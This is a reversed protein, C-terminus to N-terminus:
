PFAYKRPLRWTSSCILWLRRFPAVCLVTGSRGQVTRILRMNVQNSLWENIEDHRAISTLTDAEREGARAFDMKSSRLGAGSPAQYPYLMFREATCKGWYRPPGDKFDSLTGIPILLAVVHRATDRLLDSV